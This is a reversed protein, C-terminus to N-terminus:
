GSPGSAARCAPCCRSAKRPSPWFPKRRGGRGPKSTGSQFMLRAVEQAPVLLLFDPPFRERNRSVAKNLDRTAVDYLAALDFDLMVMQGRYFRIVQQIRDMAVTDGTM